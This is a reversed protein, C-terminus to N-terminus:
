GKDMKTETGTKRGYNGGKEKGAKISTHYTQLQIVSNGDFLRDKPIDIGYVIELLLRHANSKKRHGKNEVCMIMKPMTKKKSIRLVLNKSRSRWKIWEPDAFDKIIGKIMKLSVKDLSILHYNNKGSEIIYIDSFNYKMILRCAVNEAGRLSVNDLDLMIVHMRKNARSSFGMCIM